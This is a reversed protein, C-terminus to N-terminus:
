EYMIANTVWLKTQSYKKLEIKVWVALPLKKVSVVKLYM